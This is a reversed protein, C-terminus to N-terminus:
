AASSRAAPPPKAGRAALGAKTIVPGSGDAVADVSTEYTGLASTAVVMGNRLATASSVFGTHATAKATLTAHATAVDAALDAQAQKALPDAQVEPCQAGAAVVADLFQLAAAPNHPDLITHKVISRAPNSASM